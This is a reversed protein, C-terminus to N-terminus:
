VVVSSSRNRSCSYALLAEKTRGDEDHVINSSGVAEALDSCEQVLGEM